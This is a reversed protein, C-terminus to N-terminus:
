AKQFPKLLKTAATQADDLAQKPQKRGLLVAQLEDTLAQAVRQNDHTSLEPVAFPLQDRAVAAQPFGAVYDKMEQTEWADARPAVYGTAMSWNAAREPTTVWTLFTM